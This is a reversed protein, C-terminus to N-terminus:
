GKGVGSGLKKRFGGVPAKLHKIELLPHYIIDCGAKRLKMGFDADEGYGHEFVESFRLGKVFRSRVMSTGSGFSGWQKVKHFITKEGPQKCNLNICNINLRFAEDLTKALIDKAM